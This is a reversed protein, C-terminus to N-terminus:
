VELELLFVNQDLLIGEVVLGVKSQYDTCGVCAAITAALSSHVIVSLPTAMAVALATITCPKTFVRPNRMARTSAEVAAEQLTRFYEKDAALERFQRYMHPHHPYTPTLSHTTHTCLSYHALHVAILHSMYPPHPVPYNTLTCHLPTCLSM